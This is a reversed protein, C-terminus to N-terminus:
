AKAKWATGQPSDVLQIGKQDLAKRIDDARKFDRAKRAANREDILARIADDSLGGDGATRAVRQRRVAEIRNLMASPEEGFVGWVTELKEILRLFERAILAREATAPASLGSKGAAGAEARNLDRIFAFLHGLAGSTNLDALMEDDIKKEVDFAKGSLETWIGGSAADSPATPPAADAVAVGATQGAEVAWKKALYVRELEGIAQSLTAETYPISSRYHFSLCIFKLLEGSYREIFERIPLINGLSKSMKENGATFFAHHVWHNCFTKGNAAESQAIENEHHPFILDQGGHHLDITDGLWRKAMSSCEIHWGPRGKSWPSDWYPEGPKHPKWLSFDLPSKKRSDVDVRAGAQLDEVKKGSLKGYSPFSDISFSFRGMLSM